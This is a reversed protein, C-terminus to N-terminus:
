IIEHITAYIFFNDYINFFHEGEKKQTMDLNKTLNQPSVQQSRNNTQTEPTSCPLM